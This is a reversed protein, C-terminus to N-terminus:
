VRVCGKNAQRMGLAQEIRDAREQLERATRVLQERDPALSIQQAAELTIEAQRRLRAAETM